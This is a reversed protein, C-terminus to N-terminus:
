NAFVTDLDIFQFDTPLKAAPERCEEEDNASPSEINNESYLNFHYKATCGIATSCTNNKM